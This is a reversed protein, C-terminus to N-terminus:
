FTVGELSSAVSETLADFSVLFPDALLSERALRSLIGRKNAPIQFREILAMNDLAPRQLRALFAMRDELALGGLAARFHARQDVSMFAIGKDGLGCDALDMLFLPDVNDQFASGVFSAFSRIESFMKALVPTLGLGKLLPLAAQQFPDLIDKVLIKSVAEHPMDMLRHSNKRISAETEPALTMNYRMLFKGARLMRTPDDTFTKDPDFPTRLVRANLDTVGQGLLDIVPVNDPGNTLDSLRWMLTNVTFDRRSMDEMITAEAVHSPKYGKGAADVSYSETRANAIEVVQGQFPGGKISMIAVGYQNVTIDVPGILRAFSHALSTSDQGLAISDVVLDVDKIAEGILHNRVAGGVVFVHDTIQLRLCLGALHTMLAVINHAM